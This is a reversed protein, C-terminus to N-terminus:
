KISPSHFLYHASSTTLYRRGVRAVQTQQRKSEHRPPLTPNFVLVFVSQVGVYAYKFHTSSALFLVRELM